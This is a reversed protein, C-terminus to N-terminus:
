VWLWVWVGIRSRVKDTNRDRITARDTFIKSGCRVRDCDRIRSSGGVKSRGRGRGGVRDRCVVEDRDRDSTSGISLNSYRNEDKVRGRGRAQNM